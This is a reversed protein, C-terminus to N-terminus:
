FMDPAVTQNLKRQREFDRLSRSSNPVPTQRPTQSLMRWHVSHSERAPQRPVSWNFSGIQEAQVTNLLKKNEVFGFESIRKEQTTKPFGKFITEISKRLQVVETNTSTLLLKEVQGLSSEMFKIHKTNDAIEEKFSSVSKSTQEEAEKLMETKKLEILKMLNNALAEIEKAVTTGKQVLKDCDAELKKVTNRKAQLDSKQLDSKQQEILAEIDARQKEAEDDIHDFAHGNHNLTVCTQCVATKCNKCYYKLEENKHRPEPCFVPRKLVDEYDKDQFEKLAM